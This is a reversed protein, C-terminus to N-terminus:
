PFKIGETGKPMANGEQDIFKDVSLAHGGRVIGLIIYLCLLFIYQYRIFFSKKLYLLISTFIIILTAFTEKIFNASLIQNNQQSLKLLRSLDLYNSSIYFVILSAIIFWFIKKNYFKNHYKLGPLIFLFIFPVMYRDILYNSPFWTAMFLPIAILTGLISLILFVEFIFNKM